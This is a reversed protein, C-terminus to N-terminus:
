HSQTVTQLQYNIQAEVDCKIDYSTGENKSEALYWAGNHYIQSDNYLYGEQPNEKTTVQGTIYHGKNVPPNDMNIFNLGYITINDADIVEDDSTQITYVGSLGVVFREPEDMSTTKAYIVTGPQAEISVTYIENIHVSWDKKTRNYKNGLAVGVNNNLNTTPAAFTGFIQGNVPRYSNSNTTMLSSTGGQRTSDLNAVYDVTFAVPYNSPTLIILDDNENLLVENNDTRMEYIRNPDQIIFYQNKIKIVYGLIANSTDSTSEAPAPQGGQLVPYPGSQMTIRLYTLDIHNVGDGYHEKNKILTMINPNTQHQLIEADDYIADGNSDITQISSIQGLSNLVNYHVDDSYSGIKQIGYYNYNTINAQAIEYATASFSYILRHLSENPTQSVDMLNILINGETQSKFLKVKNNYLFDQVLLRFERQRVYDYQEDYYGYEQNSETVGFLSHPTLGENYPKYCSNYCNNYMKEDDTFLHDEDMYATITGSIPFSRYYVDGNKRVFPYKSGITDTKSSLTNIKMNSINCDYKLTLQCTNSSNDNCGLLFSDEFHIVVPNLIIPQGRTGDASRICAKYKYFIGSQMTFDDFAFSPLDNDIKVNTIDEWHKFQSRSSTRSLTITKTIAAAGQNAVVEVRGYGQEEHSEFHITADLQEQEGPMLRVNYNINSSYGHQTQIFLNILYSHTGILLGDDVLYEFYQAGNKITQIGSDALIQDAQKITIRWYKLRETTSNYFGNLSQPIYNLEDIPTLTDKNLLNSIGYDKNQTLIGIPRLLSVTSWESFHNLNLNLWSSNNQSNQGMSVQETQTDVLRLQVKYNVGEKFGDQINTEALNIYYMGTTAQQIINNKSIGMIQNTWLNKNLANRNTTQYRVVLQIRSIEQITNYNSLTFYIRAPQNFIFAPMAAAVIPPYLSMSAM